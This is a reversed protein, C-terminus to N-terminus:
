FVYREKSKEIAFVDLTGSRMNAVASKSRYGELAFIKEQFKAAEEFQLTAALESVKNKWETLLPQIHGKLLATLKNVGEDYAEKTQFGQCPGKCNGM